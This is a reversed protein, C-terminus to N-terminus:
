VFRVYYVRPLENWERGDLLRGTCKKGFRRVVTYKEADHWRGWGGVVPKTLGTDRHILQCHKTDYFEGAESWEGWNKFMFPVGAMRCQDRVSRAWAPDIPRAGPGTEGGCIVWDIKAPLAWDRLRDGLLNGRCEVATLDLPYLAPEYSVFHVMAPTELLWPIREQATTQDEVSVGLWINVPFENCWWSSRTLVDHMRWARKTLLLFWHQPNNYAINIVRWILEEQVEPHFLDGMSCVFIIRSKKWRDPKGWTSEEAEGIQGTWGQSDVVAQYHQLDMSKLRRAMREAYCNKCGMSVKSCGVIPNWTEDCWEIKSGM